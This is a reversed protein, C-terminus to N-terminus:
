SEEKSKMKAPGVPLIITVTTGLGPTSEMRIRGKYKQVLNHTIYLGLGTGKGVEKTTFFPEFIRPIADPPIGPGTDQIDSFLYDWGDESKLFINIKLIGGSEMAQISNMIVNLFIEEIQTKEGKLPPMEDEIEVCTKINQKMLQIRLFNLLDQILSKVDVSEIEGDKQSIFQLLSKLLATMRHCASLVTRLSDELPSDTPLESLLLEAHGHIINLPTGLEHALGNVLTSVANLKESIRLDKEFELSQTIDRFLSEYGIIKGKKDTIPSRTLELKLRTGDKHLRTVCCRELRGHKDVMNQLQEVEGRELLEPPILFYFPKGIVEDVQYGFIEEAGRNFARIKNRTDFVILGDPSNRLLDRYSMKDFNLAQPKQPKKTKHHSPM